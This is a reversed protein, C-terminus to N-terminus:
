SLGGCSFLFLKGPSANPDLTLAAKSLQYFKDSLPNDPPAPLNMDTLSGFCLIMFLLALDHSTGTREKQKGASVGPLSNGRDSAIEEEYWMPLVEDEIQKETVAGFFWPAQELYLQILRLGEQYPPLYYARLLSLTVPEHPNPLSPPVPPALPFAQALNAVNDPLTTDTAL